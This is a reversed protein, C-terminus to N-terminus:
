GTEREGGGERKEEKVRKRQKAWEDHLNTMLLIPRTQRARRQRERDRQTKWDRQTEGRM